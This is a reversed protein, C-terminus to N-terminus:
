TKNTVYLQTGNNGNGSQLVLCTMETSINVCRSKGNAKAFVRVQLKSIIMRQVVINCQPETSKVIVVPAHLHIALVTLGIEKIIHM